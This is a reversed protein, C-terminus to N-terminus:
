SLSDHERREILIPKNGEGKTKQAPQQAGLLCSPWQRLQSLCAERGGGPTPPKTLGLGMLIRKGM